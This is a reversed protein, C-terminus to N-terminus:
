SRCHFNLSLNNYSIPYFIGRIFKFYKSLHRRYYLFSLAGHARFSQWHATGSEDLMMEVIRLDANSSLHLRSSRLLSKLLPFSNTDKIDSKSNLLMAMGIPDVAVLSWCNGPPIHFTLPESLDPDFNESKVLVQLANFDDTTHLMAMLAVSVAINAPKGAELTEALVPHSCHQEATAAVQSTQATRFNRLSHWFKGMLPLFSVRPIWYTDSFKVNANSLLDLLRREDHSVIADIICGSCGSTRTAHLAM